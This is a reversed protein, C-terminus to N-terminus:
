LVRHVWQRRISSRIVFHFPICTILKVIIASWISISFNAEYEWIQVDTGTQAPTDTYFFQASALAPLWGLCSGWTPYTHRLLQCHRHMTSTATKLFLKTYFSFIIVYYCLNVFRKHRIGRYNLPGVYFILLFTRM